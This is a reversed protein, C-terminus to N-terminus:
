RDSNSELSEIQGGLAHSDGCWPCTTQMTKGDWCGLKGCACLSFGQSKCYPCGPYGTDVEFSGDIRTTDYGEKEGTKQKISFAWTANWVRAHKQELRIGFLEKFRTCRSLLIVVKGV